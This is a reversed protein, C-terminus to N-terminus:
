GRTGRTSSRSWRARRGPRRRLEAAFAPILPAPAYTFTSPMLRACAALPWAAGITVLPQVADRAGAAAPRDNVHIVPHGITDAM